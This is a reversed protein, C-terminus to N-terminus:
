TEGTKHDCARLVQGFSGKGMVEQLEYRYLMHDHMHIVYDGREDDFGYNSRTSVRAKANGVYYIHPFELIETREQASLQQGYRAIAEQPTLPPVGGLSAGEPTPQGLRSQSHAASHSRSQAPPGPATPPRPQPQQQLAQDAQPKAPFHAHMVQQQQQQQQPPAPAASVVSSPGKQHAVYRQQYSAIQPRVGQGMPAHSQLPADVQSSAMAGVVSAAAGARHAPRPAQYAANYSGIGIASASSQMSNQHRGTNLQTPKSQVPRLRQQQQPRSDSDDKSEDSTKGRSSSSQGNGERTAM